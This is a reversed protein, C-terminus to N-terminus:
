AATGVRRNEILPRAEPIPELLAFINGYPDEFVAEMGYLQKTPASVFKVGRALLMEYTKRCDNTDFVWPAGQGIQQMLAQIHEAGHLAVDPQALAIEPKQQGPPAVTLFRMGPGYCIDARKELGLKEIYFRLAEEQDGVLVSIVTLHTHRKMREM